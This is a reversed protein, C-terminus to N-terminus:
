CDNRLVCCAEKLDFKCCPMVKCCWPTCFLKATRVPFMQVRDHDTGYMNCGGSKRERKLCFFSLCRVWSHLSQIFSFALVHFVIAKVWFLSWFLFCFQDYTLQHLCLIFVLFKPSGHMIQMLLVHEWFRKCYRSCYGAVEFEFPWLSLYFFLFFVLKSWTRAHLHQPTPKHYYTEISKLEHIRFCVSWM